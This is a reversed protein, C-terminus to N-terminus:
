FHGSYGLAPNEAPNLVVPRVEGPLEQVRRDSGSSTIVATRSSQGADLMRAPKADVLKAPEGGRNKVEYSPRTPATAPSTSSGSSSPVSWGTSPRPPPWPTLSSERGSRSPWTQRSAWPGGSMADAIPTFLM